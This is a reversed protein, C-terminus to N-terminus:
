LLDMYDSSDQISQGIGQQGMTQQNMAQQGMGQQGIAQGMVQQGQQGLQPRMGQQQLLHKLGPNQMTSQMMRPQGLTTNGGQGQPGINMGVGVHPQGTGMQVNVPGGPGGPGGPGPQGLGQSVNGSPMQSMQGGGMMANGSLAQTLQPNQQIIMSQTSMVNMNSGSSTPLQPMGPTNQVVMVPGGGSVNPGSVPAMINGPIQGKRAGQIVSRIKNVFSVQDVPIFGVYAKKECSFLLIIVKVENQSPAPHSVHVCGAMGRFLFTTLAELAPSQDPLFMVTKVNKFFTNGISGLIHKPIMQMILKTSWGETKVEPEGNVVLSTMKCTVQHAVRTNNDGKKEQWELTGQWVVQRQNPMNIGAGQGVQNPTQPMPVPITQNVDQNPLPPQTKTMIVPQMTPARQGAGVPWAGGHTNGPAANPDPLWRPRNPGIGVPVRAQVNHAIISPQQTSLNGQQTSTIPNVVMGAPPPRPMGSTQVQTPAPSGGNVPGPSPTAPGTPLTNPSPGPGTPPQSVHPAPPTAVSTVPTYPILSPSLAREQLIIDKLLVLHQPKSAYNKAMCAQHDGGAADFLRYLEVLKHMSIVSLQIGCRKLELIVKEPSTPSWPNTMPTSQTILICCRQVSEGPPYRQKMTEFLNLAGQLGELIFAQRTLNKCNYRANKIANLIDRESCTPGFSEVQGWSGVLSLETGYFVSAYQVFSSQSFFVDSEESLGNGFFSIIPSIYGEILEPLYRKLSVSKEIVFVIDSRDYNM